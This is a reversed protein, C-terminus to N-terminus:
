LLLILQIKRILMYFVNKIILLIHYLAIIYYLVKNCKDVYTLMQNIIYTMHYPQHWNNSSSTFVPLIKYFLSNILKFNILSRYEHDIKNINKLQKEVLVCITSFMENKMIDIYFYFSNFILFYLCIILYYIGELVIDASYSDDSFIINTIENVM